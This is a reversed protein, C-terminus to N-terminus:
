GRPRREWFTGDVGFFTYGRGPENLISAFRRAVLFHEQLDPSFASGLFHDGSHNGSSEVGGDFTLKFWGFCGEKWCGCVDVVDKDRPMLEGTQAPQPFKGFMIAWHVHDHHDIQAYKPSRVGRQVNWDVQPGSYILEHTIPIVGPSAIALFIDTLERTDVGRNFGRIDLGLGEGGHGNRRHSSPYGAKTYFAHNNISTVVGDVGTSDLYRIMAHVELSVEIRKGNESRYATENIRIM